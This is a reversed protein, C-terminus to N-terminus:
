ADRTEEPSRAPPVARLAFVGTGDNVLLVNGDENGLALDLDGDADVDGVEADQTIDGAAPLRAATEDVFRGRGDNVFLFDQANNSLFSDVDGASQLDEAVLAKATGRRPM